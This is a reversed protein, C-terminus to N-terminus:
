GIFPFVMIVAGVTLLFYQLAKLTGLKTQYSHNFYLGAAVFIAGLALMSYVITRTLSTLMSIGGSIILMVGVVYLITGLKRNETKNTNNM